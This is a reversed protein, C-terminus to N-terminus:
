RRPSTLAALRKLEVGSHRARLFLASGHRPLQMEGDVGLPYGPPCSDDIVCPDRPVSQVEIVPVRVTDGPNPDAYEFACWPGAGATIVARSTDYVVDLQWVPAPRDHALRGLSAGVRVSAGRAM